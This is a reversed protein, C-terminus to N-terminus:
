FGGEVARKLFRLMHGIGGLGKPPTVVEVDYGAFAARVREEYRVGCVVLIQDHRDLQKTRVQEALAATTIVPDSPRDFTVDYPGPVVDDGWLFGYKASLIVWRDAHREAYRRTYRHFTSTYVRGAPM